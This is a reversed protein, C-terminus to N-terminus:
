ATYPVGSNDCIHQGANERAMHDGSQFTLAGMMTLELPPHPTLATISSQM